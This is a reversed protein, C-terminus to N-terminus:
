KPKPQTTKPAPKPVKPPVRSKAFVLIEEKTAQRHRAQWILCEELFVRTDKGEVGLDKADNGDLLAKVNSFNLLDLTNLLRMGQETVKQTVEAALGVILALPYLKANSRIWLVLSDVKKDETLTQNAVIDVFAQLISLMDRVTITVVSSFKLKEKVLFEVLNEKKSFRYTHLGFMLGSLMLHIRLDALNELHTEHLLNLQPQQMLETIRNWIQKNKEIIRFLDEQKLPDLLKDQQDIDLIQHLFKLDVALNLFETCNTHQLAAIVEKSTKEKSVKARMAEYVSPDKIAEIISPHITFKFRAAFKLIRAVRLPDELFIVLADRPTRIIGEKLDQLGKGTFDEVKAENINYYLSNITIDRRFADQEPTGFVNSTPARGESYEEVRLNVIDILLDEIRITATQLHETKPAPPRVEGNQNTGFTEPLLEKYAELVYKTFDVGTLTDLSIDIDVSDRGLLKDRVWGGNVRLVLGRSADEALKIERARKLIRFIQEETQNLKLQEGFTTAEM